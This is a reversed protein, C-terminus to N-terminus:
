CVVMLVRGDASILVRGDASILVSDTLVSDTPILSPRGRRLSRALSRVKDWKHSGGCNRPFARVPLRVLTRIRVYPRVSWRVSARLRVSVSLM